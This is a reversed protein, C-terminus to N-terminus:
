KLHLYKKARLLAEYRERRGNSGGNIRQMIRDFNDRDADANLHNVKWFECATRVSLNLDSAVVTPNTELDVDLRRGTEHYNYRGTLHLLGRGIFLPGDGPHTNGLRKGIHTGYDYEKGGRAPHESMDSFQFTECCAQSLFHVVRLPTNISYVKFWHNLPYILGQINHVQRDNKSRTSKSRFHLAIANLLGQDVIVTM